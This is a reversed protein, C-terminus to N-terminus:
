RVYILAAPTFAASTAQTNEFVQVRIRGEDLMQVLMLGSQTLQHPHLLRYTVVGTASTVSEPRPADAPITWLGPASITGGISVRVASPDNYDYAFALSKPWGAPGNTEPTKPVSEHFWSGVLKGPQDYDIRGDKDSTVRRIRSYFQARLPETFYKWPSVCYLTQDPYREPVIFGPLKQSYDFAGLDIAAGPLTVGISDGAHVVTGPKLTTTDIVVHDLYWYFDKTMRFTVKWDPRASPVYLVWTVIGEGPAYVPRTVTDAPFKPHDIDWTYFYVHDTPLVHGVPAIHGLPTLTGEDPVNVPTATFQAVTAPPPFADEVPGTGGHDGCAVLLLLAATASRHM